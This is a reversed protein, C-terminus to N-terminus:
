AAIESVKITAGGSEPLTLAEEERCVRSELFLGDQPNRFVHVAKLQRDIVWVERIGHEAYLDHKTGLDYARSTDAIEILLIVDAAEPIALMYYDDRWRLITFDPQPESDNGLGVPNRISVMAKSRYAESLLETLLNTTGGHWPGEKVPVVMIGRILEIQREDEPSFVGAETLSHYQERTIRLPKSASM